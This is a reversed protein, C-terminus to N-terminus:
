SYSALQLLCADKSKPTTCCLYGTKAQNLQTQLYEGIIVLRVFYVRTSGVRHQRQNVGLDEGSCTYMYSELGQKRMM